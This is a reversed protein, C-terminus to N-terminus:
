EEDGGPIRSEIRGVGNILMKEDDEIEYLDMCCIDVEQWKAEMMNKYSKKDIM